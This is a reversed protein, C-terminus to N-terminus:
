KAGKRQLLAILTQLEEDTYLKPDIASSDEIAGQSIQEIDIKAGYRKPNIYSAVRLMTDIKIKAWSVWSPDIRDGDRTLVRDPESKLLAISEIVLADATSCLAREYRAAFGPCQLQHFRVQTASPLYRDTTHEAPLLGVAVNNLVRNEVDATWAFPMCPDTNLADSVTNPVRAVKKAARGAAAACPPGEADTAGEQVEAIEAIEAVVSRVDPLPLRRLQECKHRHIWPASMGYKAAAERESMGEAIDKQM